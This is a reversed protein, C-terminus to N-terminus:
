PKIEFLDAKTMDAIMEALVRTHKGQSTSKGIKKSM